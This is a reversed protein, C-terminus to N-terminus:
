SFDKCRRDEDAAPPRGKRLYASPGGRFGAVDFYRTRGVSPYQLVIRLRLAKSRLSM